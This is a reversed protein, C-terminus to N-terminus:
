NEYLDRGVVDLGFLVVCIINVNPKVTVDTDVLFGLSIEVCPLYIEM